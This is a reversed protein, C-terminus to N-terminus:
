VATLNKKWGLKLCGEERAPMQGDREAEGKVLGAFSWRGELAPRRRHRPVARPGDDEGMKM